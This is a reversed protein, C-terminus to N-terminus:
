AAEGEGEIDKILLQEVQTAVGAVTTEAFFAQIPLEIGVAANIRAIVRLALLSHGGLEFFDDLAGIRPAALVEGWVEAVLMEADTRPAVFEHESPLGGGGAPATAASPAPNLASLRISPDAVVASLLAAYRDALDRATAESFLATNYEIRGHGGSVELLLDDEAAASRVGFGLDLYNFGLQYLPPVGPSRHTALAEVLKQFPMEQYEWATLMRDRVRVLLDTFSLDGSCDIRVVVMNVFMGILPQVDPEDRGAVPVGIVV